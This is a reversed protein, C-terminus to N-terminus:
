NVLVKQPVVSHTMRSSRSFRASTLHVGLSWFDVHKGYGKEDLLVEPALYRVDARNERLERIILHAAAPTWEVRLVSLLHVSQNAVALNAEGLM